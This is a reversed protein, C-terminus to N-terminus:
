GTVRVGDEVENGPHVIVEEREALGALVQASLGSQRGVSVERRVARGGDVVFVAWGDETRFLASTPVQLADTSEWVVFRALVRYGAGLASWTEPPSVLNAVVPVRREEVGLASIETHGQPAVSTVSAELEYGGGWQDLLVRTGPHIQVADQSLVDVVVELHGTDGIEVIPEGANVFGASERHVALVRGTVPAHLITGVAQTGPAQLAAVASELEARAAERAAIAQAAEAEAQDRAQGTAAEVAALRRLREREEVALEARADAQELAARAAEARAQAEARSRTDLMVPPPAELEALVQGAVVGDGPELDIRRVVAAIPASVVFRDQARTEGEEEVIVQLPGREVPATQVPIPDPWFGYILLLLVLLGIGIRIYHKRNLRPM